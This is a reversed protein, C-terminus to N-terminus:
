SLEIMDRLVKDLSTPFCSPLLHNENVIDGFTDLYNDREVRERCAYLFVKNKLYYGGTKPTCLYSTILNLIHPVKGAVSTTKNSFNPQFSTQLGHEGATLNKAATWGM